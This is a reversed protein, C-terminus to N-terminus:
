QNVSCMGPNTSPYSLMFDLADELFGSFLAEDASFHPSKPFPFIDRVQQM